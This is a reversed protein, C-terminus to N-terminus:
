PHAEIRSALSPLVVEMVTGEATSSAVRIRGGHGEVLDKAVALGVGSGRGGSYGREFARALTEPRMGPGADRVELVHEDSETRLAVVVRDNGGSAQVANRVLNRVVQMLREPDGAVEAPAGSEVRVGPYELAVRAVVDRLDLLRHELVRTLDGRAVLLLDQSTRLLERAAEAAAQLRPDDSDRRLHGLHYHVLTLPASIEHAVELLFAREQEQRRRIGALADNLGAALDHVEDPPGRYTVHGPVATDLRRTQRALDTLPWLMRRVGLLAAMAALAVVLGGSAILARGVGALALEAGTIDHALRIWGNAARWRAQSVLLARDDRVIRTPEAVAPLPLPDGWGLAVTGDAAVFQLVIGDVAADTFSAGLSPEDLLAAVRELDHQLVETLQQRLQREYSVHVLAGFVVVVLATFATAWVGLRRSLTL